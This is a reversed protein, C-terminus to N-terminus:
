SASIPLRSPSVPASRSIITTATEIPLWHWYQTTACPAIRRTRALSGAILSSTAAFQRLASRGARCRAMRSYAVFTALAECWGRFRDRGAKDVDTLTLRKVGGKPTAGIEAMAMLSDWLRRGDIRQNTGSM